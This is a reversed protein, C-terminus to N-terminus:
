TFELSTFQSGQDTNFVEPKGRALAEELAEACFGAERTNSLRCAVVYRSQWDMIAVLYLFGPGHAPLHHGGGVGPQDPHGQREEAKFASSHKRRGKSM